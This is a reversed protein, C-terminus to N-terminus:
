EESRMIHLTTVAGFANTMALMINTAMQVYDMLAWSGAALLVAAICLVCQVVFAARM